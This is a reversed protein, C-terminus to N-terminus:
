SKPPPTPLDPLSSAAVPTFALVVRGAPLVSTMAALSGTAVFFSFCLDADDADFLCLATGVIVTIAALVMVLRLAPASM